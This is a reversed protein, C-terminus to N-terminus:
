RSPGSGWDKLTEAAEPHLGSELGAELAGRHFTIGVGWGWKRLQEWGGRGRREAASGGARQGRGVRSPETRGSDRLLLGGGGERAPAGAQQARM